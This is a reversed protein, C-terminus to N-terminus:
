RPPDYEFNWLDMAAKKTSEWENILLSIGAGVLAPWFSGGNTMKLEAADMEQINGLTVKEM